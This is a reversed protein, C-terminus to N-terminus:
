DFQVALEIDGIKVKAGPQLRQHMGHKMVTGNVSTGNTSGMDEIRLIDGALLLRAHRRSVTPHSLVVDCRGFDRGIVFGERKKILRDFCLDFGFKRGTLDAGHLRLTAQPLASTKTRELASERARV